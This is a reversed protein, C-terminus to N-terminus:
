AFFYVLKIFFDGVSNIFKTNLPMITKNVNVPAIIKKKVSKNLSLANPVLRIISPM